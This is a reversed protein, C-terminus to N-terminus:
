HLTAFERTNILSWFLDAIAREVEEHENFLRKAIRADKKSPLRCVAQLFVQEISESKWRRLESAETPIPREAVIRKAAAEIQSELTPDSLLLMAQRLTAGEIQECDCTLIREPRSYVNLYPQLSEDDSAFRPMTAVSPRDIGLACSLSDAIQAANLVRPSFFAYNHVDNANSENTLASRQWTQSNLILSELKRIDYGSEIFERALADLM